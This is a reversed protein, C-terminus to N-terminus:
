AASGGASQEDLDLRQSKRMDLQSYRITGLLVEPLEDETHGQLCSVIGTTLKRLGIAQRRLSANWGALVHMPM